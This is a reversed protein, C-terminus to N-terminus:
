RIESFTRIKGYHTVSFGFFSETNPPSETAPLSKTVARRRSRRIPTKQEEKETEEIKEEKVEQPEVNSVPLEEKERSIRSRSRRRSRSRSRIRKKRSPTACKRRNRKIRRSSRKVEMEEEEIAPSLCTTTSMLKWLKGKREVIGSKEGRLLSSIIQAELDGLADNDIDVSEIEEMLENVTWGCEAQSPCKLALVRFTELVALIDPSSYLGAKICEGQECIGEESMKSSHTIAAIFASGFGPLPHCKGWIGPKGKKCIRLRAGTLKEVTEGYTVAGKYTKSGGDDIYNEHLNESRRFMEWISNVEM